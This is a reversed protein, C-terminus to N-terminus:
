ILIDQKRKSQAMIIMITKFPYEGSHYRKVSDLWMESLGPSSGTLSDFVVVLHEFARPLLHRVIFGFRSSSLNHKNDKYLLNIKGKLM